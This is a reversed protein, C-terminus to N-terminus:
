KNELNRVKEELRAIRTLDDRERIDDDKMDARMAQVTVSMADVTSGVGYAWPGAACAIMAMLGMTSATFRIFWKPIMIVDSETKPAM